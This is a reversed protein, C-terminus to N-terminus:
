SFAGYLVHWVIDLVFHIIVASVFGHKRYLDAAALSLSGNLIILEALLILPFNMPDTIGVIYMVSPLHAFSFLLASVIAAVWFTKEGTATKILKGFIWLLFTIVVLRFMIEEGIGAATSAVISTPFPPHPIRGLGNFDALMIDLFIFMVGLVIGYFVPKWVINKMSDGQKWMGPLGLKPNLRLAAYGLGGYIIMMMFFTMIAFFHKPLPLEMDKPVFDGMPLYINIGAAIGLLLVLLLYTNRQPKTWIPPEACSQCVPNEGNEHRCSQCDM